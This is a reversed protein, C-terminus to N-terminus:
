SVNSVYVRVVNMRLGTTLNGTKTSGEFSISATIIMKIIIIDNVVETHSNFCHFEHM